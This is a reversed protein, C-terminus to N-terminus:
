GVVGLVPGVRHPVKELVGVEPEDVRARPGLPRQLEAPSPGGVDEFVGIAVRQLRRQSACTFSTTTHGCKSGSTAGVPATTVRSTSSSARRLCVRSTMVESGHYRSWRTSSRKAPLSM